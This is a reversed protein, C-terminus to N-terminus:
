KSELKFDMTAPASVTAELTTESNYRGPIYQRVEEKEGYMGVQGRPLPMKKSATVQVRNKGPPVVLSYKGNVIASGAGPGPGQPVFAIYGEPIPEGNLTVSGTIPVTSTGGCGALFLMALVLAGQRLVRM